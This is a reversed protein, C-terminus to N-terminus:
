IKRKSLRWSISKDYLSFRLPSSGFELQVVERLSKDREPVAKEPYMGWEM